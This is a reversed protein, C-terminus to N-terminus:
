PRDYHGAGYLYSDGLRSVSVTWGLKRLAVALEAPEWFVKVIDLEQGDALRRRATPVGEIVRVDDYHAVRNDEDVFAVRGNPRLCSRVLWWFREFLGPPIHSLLFGFFVIDYTTDPTWEFVDAEIYRVSPEGVEAQNRALM